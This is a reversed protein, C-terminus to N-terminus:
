LKVKANTGNNLFINDSEHKSADACRAQDTPYVSMADIQLNTNFYLNGKSRAMQCRCCLLHSELRGWELRM